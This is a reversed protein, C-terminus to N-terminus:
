PVFEDWGRLLYPWDESKECLGARVPNELVHVFKQDASERSRLRHDFFDKQWKVGFHTTAYRKWVRVTKLLDHGPRMSLVFQVHDPMIRALDVGWQGLDQRHRVSALLGCAVRADCLQDLGRRECCVTVFSEPTWKVFDPVERSLRRRGM